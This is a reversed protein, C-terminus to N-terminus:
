DEEIPLDPPLSTWAVVKPDADWGWSVSYYGIIWRADVTYPADDVHDPVCQEYAYILYRGSAIPKENPWKHLNFETEFGTM